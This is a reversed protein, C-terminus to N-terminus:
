KEKHFTLIEELEGLLKFASASQPPSSMLMGTERLYDQRRNCINNIQEFFIHCQDCEAKM